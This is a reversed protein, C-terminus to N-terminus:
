PRLLRLNHVAVCRVLAMVFVLLPCGGYHSGGMHRTKM